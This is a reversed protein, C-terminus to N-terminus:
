AGIIAAVVVHNSLLRLRATDRTDAPMPPAGIVTEGKARQSINAYAQRAAMSITPMTAQTNSIGAASVTRWGGAAAGAPAADSRRAEASSGPRDTALAKREGWNM